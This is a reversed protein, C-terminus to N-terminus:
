ADASPPGGSFVTSDSAPSRISVSQITLAAAPAHLHPRLAARLGVRRPDPRRGRVGSAGEAPLLYGHHVGGHAAVLRMWERAFREFAEIRAPDITYHVVCTIM